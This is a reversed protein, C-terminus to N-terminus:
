IYTYFCRIYPDSTSLTSWRDLKDISVDPSGCEQVSATSSDKTSCAACPLPRPPRVEEVADLVDGDKSHLVEWARATASSFDGTWTNVVLRSDGPAAHTTHGPALVSSDDSSAAAGVVLVYFISVLRVAIHQWSVEMGVHVLQM